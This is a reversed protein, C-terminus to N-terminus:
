GHRGERNMQLLVHADRAKRKARTLISEVAMESRDLIHAIERISLEDGYKLLLAEREKDNLKCLMHDVLLETDIRDLVDEPSLLGDRYEQITQAAEENLSSTKSEPIRKKRSRSRIRDTVRLKAIGYLWTQASCSGDYSPALKIASLFVEQTVEQADEYQRDLRPYVFRFVAEAHSRYFLEVAAEDREAIRSIVRADDITATATGSTMLRENGRAIGM